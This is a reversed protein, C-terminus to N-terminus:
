LSNSAVKLSSDVPIVKQARNEICQMFASIHPLYQLLIKSTRTFIPYINVNISEIVLYLFPNCSIRPIDLQSFCHRPKGKILSFLVLFFVTCHLLSKMYLCPLLIAIIVGVPVAGQGDGSQCEFVAGAAASLPLALLLHISSLKM